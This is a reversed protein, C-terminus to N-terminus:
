LKQLLRFMIQFNYLMLKGTKSKILQKRLSFRIEYLYLYLNTDCCGFKVKGNLIRQHIELNSVRLHVFSRTKDANNISWTVTIVYKHMRKTIFWALRMYRIYVTFFLVISINRFYYSISKKFCGFKSNLVMTLAKPNEM